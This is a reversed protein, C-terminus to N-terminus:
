AFDPWGRRLRRFLLPIATWPDGSDHGLEAAGLAYRALAAASLDDDPLGAAQAIAVALSGEWRRRIREFHERLRPTAGLLTEFQAVIEPSADLDFRQTMAQDELADLVSVGDARERVAGVLREEHAEDEDFVLSEKTPFYAFVTSPAVEALDAIEAVTVDDFGREVFLAMAVDAIRKRTRAKKRERLGQGPM